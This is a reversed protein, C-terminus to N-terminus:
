QGAEQNKRLEVMKPHEIDFMPGHYNFGVSRYFREAAEPEALGSSVGCEVRVVRPQEFAWKTFRQMMKAGDGPILSYFLLDSAVRAGFRVETWWYEQAIGILIGTIKGDNEAILVIGSPMAALKSVTTMITPWHAKVPAYKSAKHLRSMLTVVAENDKYTFERIM